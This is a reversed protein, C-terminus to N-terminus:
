NFDRKEILCRNQKADRQKKEILYEQKNIQQLPCWKLMKYKLFKYIVTKIEM